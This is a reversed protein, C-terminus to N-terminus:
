ARAAPSMQGRLRAVVSEGSDALIAQGKVLIRVKMDVDSWM